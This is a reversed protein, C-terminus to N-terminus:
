VQEDIKALLKIVASEKDLVFRHEYCYTEKDTDIVIKDSSRHKYVRTVRLIDGNRIFTLGNDHTCKVIDGIKFKPSGQNGSIEKM